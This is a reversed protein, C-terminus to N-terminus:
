LNLRKTPLLQLVGGYRILLGVPPWFLRIDCRMKHTDELAYEVAVSHLALFHPMKVGFIHTALSRHWLVGASCGTKVCVKLSLRLCGYQEVMVGTKLLAQKSHFCASGIQRTLKEQWPNAQTQCYVQSPLATSEPPLGALFLIIKALWHTSRQCSLTGILARRPQTGHWTQLIPPLNQWDAGLLSPYLGM